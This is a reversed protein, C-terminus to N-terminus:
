IGKVLFLMAPKGNPILRSSYSKFMQFVSTRVPDHNIKTGRGNASAEVSAAGVTPCSGGPRMGRELGGGAGARGHKGAGPGTENKEM